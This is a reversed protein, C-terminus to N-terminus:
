RRRGEFLDQCERCYTAWPLAELRSESIPAECNDCIGYTNDRIKDLAATVKDLLNVINNEMALDKEREFTELALDAPHDDYSSIEAMKESESLNANREIIEHLEAELRLQEEELKKKIAKLQPSLNSKVM